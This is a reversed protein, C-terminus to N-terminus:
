SSPRDLFMWVIKIKYAFHITCLLAVSKSDAWILKILKQSNLWNMSNKDLFTVASFVSKTLHKWYYKSGFLSGFRNKTNQGEEQLNLYFFICAQNWFEFPVRM